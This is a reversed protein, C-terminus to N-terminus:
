VWVERILHRVAAIEPINNDIYSINNNEWEIIINIHVLYPVLQSESNPVRVHDLLILSKSNTNQACELTKDSIKHTVPM